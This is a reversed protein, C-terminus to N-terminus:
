KLLDLMKNIADKEGPDCADKLMEKLRDELDLISMYSGYQCKVMDAYEGNGDDCLTYTYRPLKDNSMLKKEHTLRAHISHSERREPLRETLM